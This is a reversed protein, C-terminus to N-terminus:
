RARTLNGLPLILRLPQHPLARFGYRAYWEAAREDLADVAICWVGVPVAQVRRVANALLLRGLGQRQVDRHVALRGLVFGPVDPYRPLRRADAPALDRLQVSVASLTCYGAIRNTQPDVACFLRTVGRRVDQSARRALYEDLSPEGCHFGARDHRSADFPEVRYVM